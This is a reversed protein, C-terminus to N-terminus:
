FQFSFEEGHHQRNRRAHEGQQEGGGAAIDALAHAFERVFGFDPAPRRKRVILVASEDILLRDRQVPFLDRGGAAHPTKQEGRFVRRVPFQGDQRAVAAGKGGFRRLKGDRPEAMRAQDELQAAFPEQGIRNEAVGRREGADYATVAGRGQGAPLQRFEVEDQDGVIVVVMEFVVGDPRQAVALDGEHGREADARPQAAPPIAASRM